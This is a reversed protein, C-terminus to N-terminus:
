DLYMSFDKKFFPQFMGRENIARRIFDIASRLDHDPLKNKYKNKLTRPNYKFYDDLIQYVAKDVKVLDNTNTDYVYHSGKVSLKKYGIDAM